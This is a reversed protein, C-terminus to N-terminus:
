HLEYGLVSLGYIVATEVRLVRSGFSVPRLGSRIAQETESPSFDGEPGIFLEVSHLDAPLEEVECRLPRARQDLSALFRVEEGGAELGDEFAVVPCVEPVINQGCQKCAEMAVRRWKEQKGKLVEGSWHIAMNETLLPQIRDVGLEVSKQIVLEMTKGKAVAIAMLLSPKKKQTTGEEEIMVTVERDSGEAIVGRAWRGAGDFVEIRDGASKRMVRVCHHSEELSLLVKSNVWSAKAVFFRDM